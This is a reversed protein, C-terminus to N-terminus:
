RALEKLRSTLAKVDIEATVVTARARALKVEAKLLERKVRSLEDDLGTNRAHASRAHSSGHATDTPGNNM